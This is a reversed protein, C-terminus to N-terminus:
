ALIHFDELLQLLHGGFSSNGHGGDGGIGAIQISGQDFLVDNFQLATASAHVGSIAINIPAYVAVDMDFLSGFASGDGGGGAHNGGTSVAGSGLAGAGHSLIDGGAATDGNGGDGGVGAIQVAGQHFAVDNTQVATAASGAASIAINIPSYVAFTQHTIVGYFSGTGGVGAENGGTAFGADPGFPYHHAKVGDVYHRGEMAVFSQGGGFAADGSGGHGGIGAKQVAGQQFAVSNDQRALAHAGVGAVAINVPAFVATASHTLSGWFAGGGGNGAGNAGTTSMIRVM